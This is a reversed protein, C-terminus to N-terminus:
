PSPVGGAPVWSRRRRRRRGSEELWYMGKDANMYSRTMSAPRRTEWTPSWEPLTGEKGVAWLAAVERNLHSRATKEGGRSRARGIRKGAKCSRSIEDCCETAVSVASLVDGSRSAVRGYAGVARAAGQAAANSSPYDHLEWLTAAAAVSSAKRAEEVGDVSAIAAFSLDEVCDVYDTSGLWVGSNSYNSAADALISRTRRLEIPYTGETLEVTPRVDDLVSMRVRGLDHMAQAVVSHGPGFKELSLCAVRESLRLFRKSTGDQGVRIAARKQIRVVDVITDGRFDFGSYPDAPFSSLSTTTTSSGQETNRGAAGSTEDEKAAAGGGGEGSEGSEGGCKDEEESLGGVCLAVAEVFTEVVLSQLPQLSSTPEGPLPRDLDNAGEDDLLEPLTELLEALCGMAEGLFIQSAKDGLSHVEVISRNLMSTAMEAMRAFKPTYDHRGNIGGGEEIRAILVRALCVSASALLLSDRHAQDHYLLTRYVRRFCTEARDLERCLLYARGLEMLSPLGAAQHLDNLHKSGFVARERVVLPSAFSRIHSSLMLRSPICRYLLQLIKKKSKEKNKM